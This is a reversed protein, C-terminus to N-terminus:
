VSRGATKPVKDGLSDRLSEDVPVTVRADTPSGRLQQFLLASAETALRPHSVGVCSLPPDFFPALDYDGVGIVAVDRPIRLGAEKISRYAGLALADSVSYLSDCRGGRKLFTRMAAYGGEESLSSAVIEAPDEGNHHRSREAFRKVRQRTTQTMPEGHLVAPRVRNKRKFLDAVRGGSGDDEVVCPLSAVVRNILVVPYPLRVGALFEDDEAITNMIIAANFGHGTLLGPLESLRGASFMEIMLSYTNRGSTAVVKEAEGHLAAVFHNVLPIPAEFSSILALIVTNKVTEGSRLRRANINPLYGM